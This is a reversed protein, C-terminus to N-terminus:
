EVKIQLSSNQVNTATQLGLIKRSIEDNSQMTGGIDVWDGLNVRITTTLEEFDIFGQSNLKAIRPTITLEVVNGITRPRVAFGTSIERWDNTREIRVYRKTITIWEQTFPVIQGVKIFAREGDLVTLFQSTNQNNISQNREVIINGFSSSNGSNTSARRDNTIIVKGAKVAGTAETRDRLSQINNTSKVSIKRNVRAIDLQSVIAEIEQMRQPSARLILQNNIGTATGDAGVMPTITPLLDNAFRHQLTIIKFETEAFTNTSVLLFILLLKQLLKKMQM